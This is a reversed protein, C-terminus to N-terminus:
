SLKGGPTDKKMIGSLKLTLAAELDSVGEAKARIDKLEKRLDAIWDGLAKAADEM